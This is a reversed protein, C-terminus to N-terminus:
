FVFVFGGEYLEGSLRDAFLFPSPWPEWPPSRRGDVETEVHYLVDALTHEVVAGWGMDSMQPPLLSLSHPSILAAAAPLLLSPSAWLLARPYECPPVHSGKAPVQLMTWLKHLGPVFEIWASMFFSFFATFVKAHYPLSKFTATINLTCCSCFIYM